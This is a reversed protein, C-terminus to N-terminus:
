AINVHYSDNNAIFLTRATPSNTSDFILMLMVWADITVLHSSEVSTMDFHSIPQFLSWHHSAFLQSFSILNLVISLPVSPAFEFVVPFRFRMSAPEIVICGTCFVGSLLDKFKSPCYSSRYVAFLIPQLKDIEVFSISLDLTREWTRNM